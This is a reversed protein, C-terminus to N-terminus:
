IFHIYYLYTERLDVGEFDQTTREVTNDSTLLPLWPDTKTKVVTWNTLFVESIM